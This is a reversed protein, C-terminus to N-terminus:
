PVSKLRTIIPEFWFLGFLPPHEETSKSSMAILLVPYM